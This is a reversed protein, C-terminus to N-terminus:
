LIQLILTIMLLIKVPSFPNIFDNRNLKILIELIYPWIGKSKM